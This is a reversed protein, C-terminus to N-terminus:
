GLTVYSEIENDMELEMAIKHYKEFEADRQAILKQYENDDINWGFISAIRYYLKDEHESMANYRVLNRLQEVVDIRDLLDVLIDTNSSLRYVSKEIRKINICFHLLQNINYISAIVISRVKWFMWHARNKPFFYGSARWEAETLHREVITYAM